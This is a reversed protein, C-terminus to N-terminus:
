KVVFMRLSQKLNEGTVAVFYVGSSLGAVPFEIRQQPLNINVRKQMLFKGSADSLQLLYEGAELDKLYIYAVGNKVPNPFVSIGAPFKVTKVESQAEGATSNGVIRYHMNANKQEGLEAVLRNGARKVTAPIDDFHVGDASAQVTYTTHLPAHEPLWRLSITGEIIEANFDRIQFGRKPKKFILCFRNASYSGPQSANVSFVYKLTDTETLLIDQNLFGDHLYARAGLQQYHIPVLDLRYNQVHLNSLNFWITDGSAPMARREVVLNKADVRLGLNEGGNLIKLADLEDLENTYQPNFEVSVGDLLTEGGSLSILKGRIAILNANPNMSRTVLNSGDVKNGEKFKVTGASGSSNHVFFAQGSEINNHITGATGYSGEGPTVAYQGSGPSTETFTQYAGYGYAGGLKPDWVYFVAQVNVLDLTSFDIASAYPNGVSEFLGAAVNITPPPNSPSNGPYFIKGKTRLTTTNAPDTYNSIARDGRVFLMYGKTNYIPIDTGSVGKWLNTAPEYYKMSPGVGGIIDFGTGTINNTILTGLGPTGVIMPANGEQWAENITGDGNVPIALFQWSKGHSGSPGLDLYREIIFRGTGPYDIVSSVGNIVGINATKTASSKLIINGDHLYLKTGAQSQFKTEINMDNQINLGLGTATNRNYFTAFTVPTASSCYYNQAASNNKMEVVGNNHAFVSNGTKTFDGDVTLTGSPATKTGSNGAIILNQYEKTNTIVQDGDKIYAVTSGPALTVNSAPINGNISSSNLGSQIFGHFGQNNGCNFLAGSEVNVKCLSTLATGTITMDSMTYAAGSKITFSCLANSTIVINNSSIGVNTGTVEINYYNINNVGGQTKGKINQRTVNSGNFEIVGGTLSYIGDIDPKNGTTGAMKFRGGTMTLNTSGNGFSNYNGVDLTATGSITVTGIISNPAITSLTTNTSNAFTLNKYNMASGTRLTQAGNGNLTLTSNSNFTITGAFDPLAGGGVHGLILSTNTNLALISSSVSGILTNTGADWTGNEIGLYGNSSLFTVNNNQVVTGTGTKSVYKFNIGGPSTIQQTGAGSFRITDSGTAYAYAGSGWSTWNGEISVPYNSHYFVTTGTIDFNGKIVVGSKNLFINGSGSLIVNGFTSIVTGSYPFDLFYRTAINCSYNITSNPDITASTFSVYPNASTLVLTAGSQITLMNARSSNTRKIAEGTELTAGTKITLNGTNDSGGDPAIRNTQTNIYGSSILIDYAKFGTNLTGTQGANLAFEVAFGTGFTGWAGAVTLNRSNGVFKIKGVGSTTIFDEPITSNGTQNGYFVGDSTSTVVVGNYSRIKGNINLVNSTMVLSGRSGLNNYYIHLDNCSVGTSSLTITHGGQIYVNNAASPPTTATSWAGAGNRVQWTTATTWQGSTVSRYDGAAPTQAVILEPFLLCFVFCVTIILRLYRKGGATLLHYLNQM